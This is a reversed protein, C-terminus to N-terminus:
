GSSLGPANPNVEVYASRVFTRESDPQQCMRRPMQELRSRDLHNESSQAHCASTVIAQQM